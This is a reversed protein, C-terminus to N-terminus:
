SGCESVLCKHKLMLLLVVKELLILIFSKFFCVNLFAVMFM